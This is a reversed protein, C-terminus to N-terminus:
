GYQLFCVAGLNHACQKKVDFACTFINGMISNHIYLFWPHPCGFICTSRLQRVPRVIKMDMAELLVPCLRIGVRNFRARMPRM